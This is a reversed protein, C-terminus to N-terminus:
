RDGTGDGGTGPGADLVASSPAARGALRRVEGGLRAARREAWPPAVAVPAGSLDHLAAWGDLRGALRALVGRAGDPGSAARTLERQAAFGATTTRYQEAALVASVTKSIAIFPTPRPVELLPLGEDRCAAVLGAPTTPHHIGPGFGLGVVGAARLRRVYEGTARPDDLPVKLGTTLLLEGGELYPVPDALESVHAWRVPVDLRDGATLPRLGLAPHRALSALTPLM